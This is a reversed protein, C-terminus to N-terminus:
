FLTLTEIAGLGDQLSVMTVLVVLAYIWAIYSALILFGPQLMMHGMLKMGAWVEEYWYKPGDMSIHLKVEGRAVRRRLKEDKDLYRLVSRRYPARRTEPAVVNMLMFVALLIVVLYFGWAPNLHATVGAGFLFGVSLSGVFCWSWIGLWLGMGGGQRRIDDFVVLEQHPNQAQLSAGFMDLLTTLFNVNAFGLALGSLARPLLLGVFWKTAPSRSQSVVLAQPLQLPLAIALAALIYPKRGHLLPLPWAILTTIGM